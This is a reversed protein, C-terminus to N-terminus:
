EVDPQRGEMQRQLEDAEQIRRAIQSFAEVYLKDPDLKAAQKYSDRASELRGEAERAVGLDYHAAAVNPNQQIIQQWEDAAMDWGGATAFQVGLKLKETVAKDKDKARLKVSRVVDHPAVKVRLEGALKNTIQGLLEDQSALVPQGSDVCRGDKANGSLPLSAAVQATKADIFKVDMRIQAVRDVCNYTVTKKRKKDGKGETVEKRYTSRHDNTSYETVTGTVLADAGILKGVAVTSLEDFRVSQGKNQERVVNDLQDRSVLTFYPIDNVRADLLGTEIASRVQDGGRGEFEIVALRQFQSLDTGAPVVYRLDVTPDEFLGFIMAVTFLLGFQQFM